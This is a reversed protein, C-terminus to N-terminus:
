YKCDLEILKELTIRREMIQRTVRMEEWNKLDVQDRNMIENIKMM